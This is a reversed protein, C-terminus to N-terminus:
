NTGTGLRITAHRTSTGLAVVEVRRTGARMERVEFPMRRKRPDGPYVVVATVHDGAHPSAAALAELINARHREETEEGLFYGEYRALFVWVRSGHRVVLDATEEETVEGGFGRAWRRIVHGAWRRFLDEMPFAWPLGAHPSIGALPPAAEAPRVGGWRALLRDADDLLLRATGDVYAWPRLSARVGELARLAEGRRRHDPGTHPFRCPFEQPRVIRVHHGAYRTWLIHGRPSSRVESALGQGPTADELIERIRRLRAGEVIWPPIEPALGDVSPLDLIRPETRWGTARMMVGVDEWGGRPTVLIAHEEQEGTLGRLAVVGVVPGPRLRVHLGDARAEMQPDIGLADMQPRNLALFRLRLADPGGEEEDWGFMGPYLNFPDGGVELRILRRAIDSTAV